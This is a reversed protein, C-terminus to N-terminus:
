SAIQANVMRQVSDMMAEHSNYCITRPFILDHVTLNIPHPEWYRMQEIEEFTTYYKINDVLFSPKGFGLWYLRKSSVNSLNTKIRDDVRKELTAHIWEWEDNYKTSKKISSLVGLKKSRYKLKEKPNYNCSGYPRYMALCEIGALKLLINARDIQAEIQDDM